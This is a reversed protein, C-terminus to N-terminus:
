KQYGVGVPTDTFNNDLSRIDNVLSEVKRSRQRYARSFWFKGMDYFRQVFPYRRFRFKISNLFM